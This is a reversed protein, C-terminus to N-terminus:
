IKECKCHARNWTMDTKKVCERRDEINPCHCSCKRPNFVRPSVCHDPSLACCGCKVHEEVAYTACSEKNTNGNYIRVPIHRIKTETAICSGENDYDCIGVCNKVWVASPSVLEHPSNPKLQVFVDKPEGCRSKEMIHDRENSLESTCVVKIYEGIRFPEGLRESVRPFQHRAQVAVVAFLVLCLVLKEM